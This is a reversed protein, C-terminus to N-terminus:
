QAVRRNNSLKTIKHRQHRQAKNLKKRENRNLGDERLIAERNEIRDQANNLRDAEQQTLSSDNVNRDIRNQQTEQQPNILSGAQAGALSGVLLLGLSISFLKKNKM